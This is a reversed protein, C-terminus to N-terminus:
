LGRALFAPLQIRNAGGLMGRTVPFRFRVDGAAECRAATIPRRPSTIRGMANKCSLM